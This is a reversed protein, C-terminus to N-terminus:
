LSEVLVRGEVHERVGYVRLGDSGVDSLAVLPEVRGLLIEAISPSTKHLLSRGCTYPIPVNITFLCM